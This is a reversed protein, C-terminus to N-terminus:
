NGKLTLLVKNANAATTKKAKIQVKAKPTTKLAQDCAREARALSIEKKADTSFTGTCYITTVPGFASVFGSIVAKQSSPLNSSKSSFGSITKTSSPKARVVITPSSYHFGAAEVHIAGNARSVVTTAVQYEGQEDMVLVQISAANTLTNSPWMCDLYKETMRMKFYGVMPKGSPEAHPSEINFRLSKSDEDWSPMGAGPANHSELTYGKDACRISFYSHLDDVGTHHLFFQLRYNLSDAIAGRAMKAQFDFNYGLVYQQRGVLTWRTGGAIKQQTLDADIAHLQVDQPKMFSTRIKLRFLDTNGDPLNIMARMASGRLKKGDVLTAIIHDLSDLEVNLNVDVEGYHFREVGPYVINGQFDRRSPQKSWGLYELKTWSGDLFVEVSEICDLETKTSCMELSTVEGGAASAPAPSLLLGSM